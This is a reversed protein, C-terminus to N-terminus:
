ACHLAKGISDNLYRMKRYMKYLPTLYAYLFCGIKFKKPKRQFEDTYKLATYTNLFQIKNNNFLCVSKLFSLFKIKVYIMYQKPLDECVEFLTKYTKYYAEIRKNSMKGRSVSDRSLLVNYYCGSISVFISSRSLLQVILLEDVGISQSMYRLGDCNSRKFCRCALSPTPCNEFHDRVISENNGLLYDKFIENRATTGDEFVFHLGFQIVDVGHYNMIIDALTNLLNKEIWDDSDVFVIYDNQAIEIARKLSLGIGKNEQHFVKIKPNKESYIDLLESTGDNSGDDIIILEYNKYSQNVISNICKKINNVDNYVTIIVSFSVKEIKKLKDM